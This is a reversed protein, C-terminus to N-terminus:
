ENSIRRTNKRAEDDVSVRSSIETTRLNLELNLKINLNIGAPVNTRAAPLPPPFTLLLLPAYEEPQHYAASGVVPIRRIFRKGVRDIRAANLIAHQCFSAM